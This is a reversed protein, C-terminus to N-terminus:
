QNRVCEDYLYCGIRHRTMMESMMYQWRCLRLVKEARANTSKLFVNLRKYRLITMASAVSSPSWGLRTRHSLPRRVVTLLCNKRLDQNRGRCCSMTIRRALGLIPRKQKTISMLSTRVSVGWRQFHVSALITSMEKLVSDGQWECCCAVSLLSWAHFPSSLLIVTLWMLTTHRSRPPDQDELTTICKQLDFLAAPGGWSDDPGCYRWITWEVLSRPMVTSPRNNQFCFTMPTTVDDEYLRCGRYRGQWRRWAGLCSDRKLAGCISLNFRLVINVKTRLILASLKCTKSLQLQDNPMMTVSSHNYWSMWM